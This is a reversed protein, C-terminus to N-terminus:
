TQIVHPTESPLVLLQPSHNDTHQPRLYIVM